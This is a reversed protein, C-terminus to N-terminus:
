KGIDVKKVCIPALIYATIIGSALVIGFSSIANTSSFVLMGLTFITTLMALTIAVFSIEKENQANEFFFVYNIGIGLVLILAMTGFLNLSYSSLSLVGLAVLVSLISPLSHMLAIKVKFKLRLMNYIVIISLALLIIYNLIQRYYSFLVEFNGKQDVFVINSEDKVLNKLYDKDTVKFLPIVLASYSGDKEYLLSFGRSAVSNLYDDVTLTKLLPDCNVKLNLTSFLARKIFNCKNQYLERDKNQTSVANLLFPTYAKIVGDHKAVELKQYFKHTKVLLADDNKEYVVFFSPDTNQGTIDSIKDEMTKLSVPLDQLKAVDDSIKLNPITVLSFLVCFSIISINFVKHSNVFNLYSRVKDKFPLERKKLNQCLLPGTLIVFLCSGILGVLAFTAMQRIGNFPSLIILLYSSITTVLACLLAGKIKKISDYATENLPSSMRKVLYYISYDASIGIISISLVLSIVHIEKFILITVLFGLLIGSVIAFFAFLLPKLSRFTVFILLFVLFVTASGLTKVDYEAENAAKNAYFVSGKYLVDFNEDKLITIQNEISNCFDKSKELNFSSLNNVAHIFYWTYTDDKVALYNDILSLSVNQTMLNLQAQRVLLLPDNSIEQFSVGKFGSYLESLVYMLYADDTGKLKERISDDIFALRNEYIFKGYEKFFNPSLDANISVIDQHEKLFKVFSDRKQISKSDNNKVKVLFILQRDLNNLMKDNLASPLASVKEFPIMALVSSNVKIYPLYFIFFIFAVLLFLLYSYAWKNTSM